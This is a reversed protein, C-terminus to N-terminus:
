YVTVISPVVKENHIMLYCYSIEQGRGEFCGPNIFYVGGQKEVNAIHTHGYLVIDAGVEQAKLSLKTLDSKVGYLHGHTFFIKHGEVELLGQRQGLGSFDCNGDVAYLKDKLVGFYESLASIGDGLFIVYDSEKMIDAVRTLANRNSHVDSLVLIKKM